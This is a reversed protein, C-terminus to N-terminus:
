KHRRTFEINFGYMKALNVIAEEATKGELKLHSDAKVGYDDVGQYSIVFEGRTSGNTGEKGNMESCFAGNSLNCTTLGKQICDKKIIKKILKGM